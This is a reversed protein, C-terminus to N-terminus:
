KILSAAYEILYVKPAILIQLWELNCFMGAIAASTGCWAFICGFMYGDDSYGHRSEKGSAIYAKRMREGVVALAIALVVCFTFLVGSRVAHWMLLQQIVDPIQGALFDVGAGVADTTKKIVTILADELPNSKPTETTM